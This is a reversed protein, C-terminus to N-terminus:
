WDYELRDLKSSDELSQIIKKQIRPLLFVDELKDIDVWETSIQNLDPPNLMTPFSDKRLKCLFQFQVKQQNGFENDWHAPVYEVVFLLREVDVYAGTEETVKRKVADRLSEGVRVKGGPLNFHPGVEDCYKMLFIKNEKQIIAKVSVSINQKNM